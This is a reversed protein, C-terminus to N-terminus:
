SLLWSRSNLPPTIKSTVSFDSVERCNQACVCEDRDSLTESPPAAYPPCPTACLINVDNAREYEPREVRVHSPYQQAVSQPCVYGYSHHYVVVITDGPSSSLMVHEPANAKRRHSDNCSSDMRPASANTVGRCFLDFYGSRGPRLRSDGM